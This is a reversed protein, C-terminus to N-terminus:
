RSDGQWRSLGWRENEQESFIARTTSFKSQKKRWFSRWESNQKGLLFLLVIINKELIVILF